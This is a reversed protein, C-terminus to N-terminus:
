AWAGARATEEAWDRADRPPRGLLRGADDSLHANHGDLLFAFLEAFFAADGAPMFHQLSEAFAERSVSVYRLPKRAAKGIEAALESWRTLRPGTLDYAKGAHAPDTLANVAVEAVDNADIFPEAVDPGPLAIEGGAVAGLFDGESFNQLFWASRLVTLPVGSERFARESLAAQPEGRGSLLVAREVGHRAAAKGLEGLAAAAGPAALDPSYAVYLLAAGDLLPGWARPENWDFPPTGHRSGIRVPIGRAALRAAVRRGTKGRGGLVVTTNRENM